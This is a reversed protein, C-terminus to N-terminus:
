LGDIRGGESREFDFDEVRRGRILDTERDSMEDVQFREDDGAARASGFEDSGEGLKRSEFRELEVRGACGSEGM